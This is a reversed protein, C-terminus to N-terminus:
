TDDALETFEDEASEVSRVYLVGLLLMIPYAVVGLLWWVIPISLVRFEAAEPFFWFVLPVGLALLLFWALYVLSISLHLRLLSRLYLPRLSSPQM